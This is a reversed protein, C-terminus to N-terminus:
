EPYRLVFKFGDTLFPNFIEYKFTYSEEFYVPLFNIRGGSGRDENILLSLISIILINQINNTCFKLAIYNNIKRILKQHSLIGNVIM